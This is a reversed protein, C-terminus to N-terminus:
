FTAPSYRFESRWKNSNEEHRYNYVIIMLPFFFFLQNKILPFNYAFWERGCNFLSEIKNDLKIDSCVSIFCCILHITLYLIFIFILFVSNSSNASFGAPSKTSSMESLYFQLIWVITSSCIFASICNCVVLM